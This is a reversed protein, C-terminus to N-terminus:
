KKMWTEAIYKGIDRGMQLGTENDTKFHIGAYFRSDACDQALQQFYTADAPFYYSMVASSTSAGLAHGSPYGPFPPTAIQPKYTQRIPIAKNGMVALM